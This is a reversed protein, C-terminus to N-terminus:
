DVVEVGDEDFVPGASPAAAAGSSAAAAAPPAQHLFPHAFFEDFSLRALPNRRLLATILSACAPTVHPPPTLADATAEINKLLQVHNAGSFPPRATLLEYLIM